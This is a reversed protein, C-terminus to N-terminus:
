LDKKNLVVVFLLIPRQDFNEKKVEYVSMDKRYHEQAHSIDIRLVVPDDAFIQLM